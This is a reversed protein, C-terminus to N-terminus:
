SFWQRVPERTLVLPTTDVNKRPNETEPAASVSGARIGRTTRDGGLHPAALWPYGATVPSAGAIRILTLEFVFGSTLDHRSLYRYFETTEM